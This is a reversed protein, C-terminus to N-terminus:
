IPLSKAFIKISKKAGYLTKAETIVDPAQNWIRVADSISTCKTLNTKGIEVPRGRQSARTVAGMAPVNQQRVQLPYNDMNLAKWIELLKVQANLQNVSMMDFKSLLQKTSIKDRLKTGNLSRLLKNQVLQIERLDENEPDQGTLRVKGLLQLGYRIKSVFIGDVMKLVSKKSLHNQLRRIIYLRSNLASLVGGKGRIQNKWKLSDQFQIGLLMASTDRQVLDNGIKLVQDSGPTNLFLFSTKKPNAVLGNSAMYRLVQNADEEMLQMTESVTKASTGTTTDDAYTPATSNKLWDQLDSVFLVFILPSLVGGQPVGTPVQKPSSVKSGIRIRQSRGTLFSKVWRISRPQVGFLGLKVCMGECDLTDFAASLDWLLVGTVLGQENNQAWDLQIEQWATM